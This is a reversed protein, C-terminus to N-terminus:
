RVIAVTSIVNVGSAIWFKRSLGSTLKKISVPEHDEQPLFAKEEDPVDEHDEVIKEMNSSSM